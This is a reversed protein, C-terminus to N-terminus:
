KSEWSRHVAVSLAKLLEFTNDNGKQLAILPPRLPDDLPLRELTAHAQQQAVAAAALAADLVALYAQAQDLNVEAQAPAIAAFAAFAVIVTKM